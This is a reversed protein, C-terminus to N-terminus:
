SKRGIALIHPSAGILTPEHEVKRLITLLRERQQPDSWLRDFDRALWGPGEVAVLEVLEFGAEAVEAALQNPLHFFADTFYALNATPNRHQGEAIDRDLVAAFEPQDFFGGSLSEVLSAFRSIAGAWVLGGSRLMRYAEHLV